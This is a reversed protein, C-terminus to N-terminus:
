KTNPKTIQVYLFYQFKRRLDVRTLVDVGGLSDNGNISSIVLQKGAEYNRYVVVTIMITAGTHM